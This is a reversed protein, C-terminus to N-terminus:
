QQRRILTDSVQLVQVDFILADFPKFPSDPRPNRGYALFGPIFLTGKSGEKFLLLGEEWGRIVDGQGVQFPYSNSQFVSDTRLLRGTYRINVYKGPVVAPGSGQEKIEVYTGKGTKQANIKRAALYAEIEKFEKALEGSKELEKDEKLQQEAADKKMKAIQEEQEKMQRPRDKEMEMNYDAMGISDVKFVETIKLITILRDGAKTSPPLQEGRKMLTDAMQVMILSDGKRMQPILEYLTYPTAGMTTYKLYAPMKNHSDYYVSDNLKAIVNFKIIQGESIVSDKGGGSFLKYALGSKTKKYTVKNCSAVLLAAALMFFLGKTTKMM